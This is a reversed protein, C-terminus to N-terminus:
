EGRGATRSGHPPVEIIIRTGEDRRTAIEMSGGLREARARMNSLGHHDGGHQRRPDFGIGDDVVMLRIREGERSLVVEVHGARAHRAVNSLAERTINLLEATAEMPLDFEVSPDTSVEVSLGANARVDDALTEFAAGLGGADLLVPRLGFIFNRIDRITGHLSDITRDIRRLAEDRDDDILEEVDDLALTVAYIRQIIGDHLDKSIREREEVVALRQVRAHLRANEIAIGAHLAFMEVLSQDDESFEGGGRRNTLYLNGISRGMIPVPVGLFSHMEPHHPPFGHRREDAAIDAIRFSRNERIILGLLGHGRPPEGIRARLEASIGSTIFRELRPSSEGLIGLAAYEADVLERVRDVILQLVRDIELVGAIGRVATDLAELHRASRRARVRSWTADLALELAHALEAVARRDGAVALTGLVEGGVMARLEFRHEGPGAGLRMELPVLPPRSVELELDVVGQIAALRSLADEVDARVAASPSSQWENLADLLPPLPLRGSAPQGSPPEADTM